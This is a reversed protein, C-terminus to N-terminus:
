FKAGANRPLIFYFVAIALFALLYVMYQSISVDFFQFIATIIYFVAAISVAGVFIYVLKAQRAQESAM